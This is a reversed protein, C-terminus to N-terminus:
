CSVLSFSKEYEIIESWLLKRLWLCVAKNVMEWVMSDKNYNNYNDYQEEDEAQNNHRPGRLRLEVDGGAPAPPTIPEDQLAGPESFARSRENLLPMGEPITEVYPPHSPRTTSGMNPPTSHRLSPERKVIAPRTLSQAANYTYLNGTSGDQSTNLM